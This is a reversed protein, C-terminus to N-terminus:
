HNHQCNCQEKHRWNYYYALCLLASIALTAFLEYQEKAFFLSLVKLAIAAALLYLPRTNRHIKYDSFVL